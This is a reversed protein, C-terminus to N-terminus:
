LYTCSAPVSYEAILFLQHNDQNISNDLSSSRVCDAKWTVQFLNTFTSSLSLVPYPKVFDCSIFLLSERGRESVFCQIEMGEQSFGHIFFM